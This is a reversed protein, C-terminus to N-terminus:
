EPIEFGAQRLLRAMQKRLEGVPNEDAPLMLLHYML